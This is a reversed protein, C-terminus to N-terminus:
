NLERSSQCRENQVKLVDNLDKGREYLGSGVKYELKYPFDTTDNWTTVSRKFRQLAIEAESLSTDPLMVRFQYGASHALMDSGRFNSRLIKAFVMVLHDGALSGHQQNVHPIGTLDFFLFAISSASEDARKAEAAIVKDAYQRTFLGTTKDFCSALQQEQQTDAMLRRILRQRTNNLRRKQDLLYVNFLVILILVGSVLQPLYAADIHVADTKWLMNPLIMCVFGIALVLLILLAISWVQLDRAALDKLEHNLEAQDQSTAM